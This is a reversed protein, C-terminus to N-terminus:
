IHFYIMNLDLLIAYGFSEVKLLIKNINTRPYPKRKLKDNLNISDSLFSVQNTKPRPQSFYPIEWESDNTKELVGMLVLSEVKNKFM